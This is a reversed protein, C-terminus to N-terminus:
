TKPPKTPTLATQKGTGLPLLATPPQKCQLYERAAELAGLVWGSTGDGGGSLIRFTKMNRMSWLGPMPGGKSLDWVQHPNLHQRFASLLEAGQNCDQVIKVNFLVLLPEEDTVEPQSPLIHYSIPENCHFKGKYQREGM